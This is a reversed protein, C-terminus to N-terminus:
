ADGETHVAYLHSLEEPTVRAREIDVAIRGGTLIAVRDVAGLDRAFSHTTMLVAGGREKFGALYADLWKRGRADLGAFPEHLLVRPELLVLRGIALRRRMGASFSRVREDAFLELDVDALTARLRDAPM